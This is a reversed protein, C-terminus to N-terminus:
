TRAANCLAGFCCCFVVGDDNRDASCDGKKCQTRLAIEQNSYCGQQLVDTGNWVAFCGVSRPGFGETVPCLQIRASGDKLPSLLCVTEPLGYEEMSLLGEANRYDRVFYLMLAPNVLAAMVGIDYELGEVDITHVHFIVQAIALSVMLIIVVGSSIAAQITLVKRVKTFSEHMGRTKASMIHMKDRMIKVLWAKQRAVVIHNNFFSPYVIVYGMVLVAPFEFIDILGHLGFSGSRGPEYFKDVVPELHERPTLTSVYGAIHFMHPIFLLIILSQLRVMGFPEKKLIIRTRYWFSLSLITTSHIMNVNMFGTAIACFEDSILHCPGDSICVVTTSNIFLRGNVTFHALVSALEVFATNLLLLSYEKSTKSPKLLISVIATTNVTVGFSVIFLHLFYHISLNMQGDPRRFEIEAFALNTGIKLVTAEIEIRDGLRVPLLYSVSLEVSALGRDKVSVRVARATIIDTLTASFGGHLTGKTNVHETEIILECVLKETTISIPRVKSVVRNFNEVKALRQMDSIVLALEADQEKARLPCSISAEEINATSMILLAGHCCCFAIGNQHLGVSCSQRKCQTRLSIKQNSYCGQQLVETGNCAVFCGVSWPGFGDTMRCADIRRSENKHLLNLSRRKRGAIHTRRITTRRLTQELGCECNISHLYDPTCSLEDQSQP